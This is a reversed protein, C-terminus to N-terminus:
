PEPDVPGRIAALLRELEELRIALEQNQKEVQALREALIENETELDEDNQRRVTDTEELRNNLGQIAALAVGAADLPAIHRDDPGLAFTEHFDQANPGFHTSGSPDDKFSWTTVPLRAVKELTDNPDVPTLGTKMNVDSGASFSANVEVGTPKIFISSSQSGPEIRFPLTSGNTVDRIFFNAENGAMDWTQAAFGSSGNQELRLTPTNGSVPHVDVVPISTGLGLRGGDDVYLSNSPASAEITFPTRGGEIDDISFKNLGGNTSDNATIQWDRNPFSATSSTDQFKIRLNNEKLRITDFGFSEGNVCDMGVCLSGDVILDDLIVQDKAVPDTAEDSADVPERTAGDATTRSRSLRRADARPEAAAGLAAEEALEPSVLTGNLVTFVGSQVLDRDPIKGQGRLELEIAHDDHERATSLIELVEPELVPMFRLEYAFRGDGVVAVTEDTVNFVIPEGASFERRFLTHDPGSVTLVATEFAVLPQWSIAASHVETRTLPPPPESGAAVAAGTWM